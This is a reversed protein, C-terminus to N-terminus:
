VGGMLMVVWHVSVTIAVEAVSLVTLPCSVMVTLGIVTLMVEGVPLEDLLGSTSEEPACVEVMVTLVFSGAPVEVRDQANDLVVPQPVPVPAPPESLEV